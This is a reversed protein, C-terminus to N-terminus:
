VLGLSHIKLTIFIRLVDEKPHSTFCAEHRLNKRCTFYGNVYRLYQSIHLLKGGEDLGGARQYYQWLARISSDPTKGLRSMMM